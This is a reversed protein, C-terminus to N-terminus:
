HKYLGQQPCGHFGFSIAQLNYQKSKFSKINLLGLDKDAISEFLITRPMFRFFAFNQNSICTGIASDYFVM